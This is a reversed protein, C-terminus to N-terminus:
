DTRNQAANARFRQRRKARQQAATFGKGQIGLRVNKRLARLRPRLYRRIQHHTKVTGPLPTGGSREPLLNNERQWVTGAADRYRIVVTPPGMSELDQATLPTDDDWDRWDSIDVRVEQDPALVMWLREALHPRVRAVVYSTDDERDWLEAKVERLEISFIPTQGLNKVVVENNNLQTIAVFTAREHQASRLVEQAAYHQRLAIGLAVVAAAFSGAASFAEVNM